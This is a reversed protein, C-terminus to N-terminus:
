EGIQINQGNRVRLRNADILLTDAPLDILAPQGERANKLPYFEAKGDVALMLGLGGERRLLWEPSIAPLKGQWRLRGTKGVPLEHERQITYRVEQTGTASAVQAVVARRGVELEKGDAVFRVKEGQEQDRIEDPSLQVVVELGQSQLLQFAPTGPASIQGLQVQRRTVQGTFPATILCRGSVVEAAEQQALATELETKVTLLDAKAGELESKATELDARATGSDAKASGVSAQASAIQAKASEIDAQGAAVNAQAASIDQNATVVAAQAAAFDAQAANLSSQASDFGARAQELINVPILKDQRLQQNRQLEAQALKFQAQAAPVRARAANAQAQATNVRSKASNISTRTAQVRATTAKVVAQASSVGAVAAGARSDAASVRSGAANVRSEAAGVRASTAAIRAKVTAVGAKAQRLRVDFDRCDLRALVDGENVRDGVDATIELVKAALESSVPTDNPSILKAEVDREVPVAVNGLTKVSVTLAGPTQDDEAAATATLVWM